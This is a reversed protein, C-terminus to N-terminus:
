ALDSLGALGISSLVLKAYCKWSTSLPYTILSLLSTSWQNPQARTNCQAKARAERPTYKATMCDSYDFRAVAVRYLDQDHDSYNRPLDKEFSTWYRQNTWPVKVKLKGVVFCSWDSGTAM